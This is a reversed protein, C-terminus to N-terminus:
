KEASARRVTTSQKKTAESNRIRELEAKLREYEEISKSHEVALESAKRALNQMAEIIQTKRDAM